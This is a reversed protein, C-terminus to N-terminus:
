GLEPESSSGIFLIDVRGADTVSGYKSGSWCTLLKERAM